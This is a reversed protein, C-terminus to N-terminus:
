ANPPEAEDHAEPVTVVDEAEEEVDDGVVLYGVVSNTVAVLPVAVLAGAVGAVLAGGTVALVIALPHVRVLRGLVFPQLVHGELQFVAIVGALVLLATVLGKTVLAVLIAVAGAVVAGVLPIFAGFFVLVGLPLAFPVRLVLLVIATFVGDALAVFVTGRVYASLTVWARHGAEDVRSEIQRPFLRVAWGWIRPGDYLFFFTTFLALLAGAAFEAALTATQVAGTTLRERNEELATRVNEAYQELQRDSLSLPGTTLWERIRALGDQASTSIDGFGDALVQGLGVFILVVAAIGGVFVLASALGRPLGAATLRRVAPYLLATLLVAVVVPFVLLRFTVILWLLVAAAGALVLFRWAWEAAVRVPFSVISAAGHQAAGSPPAAAARPAAPPRSGPVEGLARRRGLPRKSSMRGVYTPARRWTM